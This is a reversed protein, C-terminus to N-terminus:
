QALANQKPQQSLLANIKNGAYAGATAGTATALGRLLNTKLWSLKVSEPAQIKALQARLSEVYAKDILKAELMPASVEKLADIASFSKPDREAIDALHMNLAKSLLDRGNPNNKLV